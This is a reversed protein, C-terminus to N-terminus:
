RLYSLHALRNRRRKRPRDSLGYSPLERLRFCWCLLVRFGACLVSNPELWSSKLYIETASLSVVESRLRFIDRIRAVSVFGSSATRRYRCRFPSRYRSWREFRGPLGSRTKTLCRTQKNTWPHKQCPQVIHMSPLRTTFDLWSYQSGFIAAFL